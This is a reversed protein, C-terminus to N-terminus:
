AGGQLLNALPGLPNKSYAVSLIYGACGLALLWAAAQVKRTKAFRLAVMGLAIYLLLAVLKARLWDFALPSTGWILLMGVASALLLTDITHPLVRAWPQRLRADGSLLWYGRLAFGAISLLACSMHVLKLADFHSALFHADPM